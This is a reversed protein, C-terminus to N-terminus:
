LTNMNSEEGNKNSKQYVDTQVAEQKRVDGGGRDGTNRVREKEQDGM